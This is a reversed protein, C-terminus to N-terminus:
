HNTSRKTSTMGHTTTASASETLQCNDVAVGQISSMMLHFSQVDGDNLCILSKHIDGILNRPALTQKKMKLQRQALEQKTGRTSM